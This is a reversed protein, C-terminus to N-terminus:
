LEREFMDNYQPDDCLLLHCCRPLPPPMEGREIIYMGVAHGHTDRTENGGGANIQFIHHWRKGIDIILRAIRTRKREQDINPSIVADSELGAFLFTAM